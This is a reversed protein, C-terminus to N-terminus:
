YIKDSHILLSSFVQVENLEQNKNSLNYALVRQRHQSDNFQKRIVALTEQIKKAEGACM